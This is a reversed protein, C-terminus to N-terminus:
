RLINLLYVDFSVHVINPDLSMIQPLMTLLEICIVDVMELTGTIVVLMIRVNSKVNEQITSTLIRTLINMTTKTFSRRPQM